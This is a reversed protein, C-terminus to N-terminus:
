NSAKVTMMVTATGEAVFYSDKDFARKITGSGEITSSTKGSHRAGVLEDATKLVLGAVACYVNVGGCLSLVGSGATALPHLEGPAPPLPNKELKYEKGYQMVFMAFMDGYLAQELAENIKKSDEANLGVPRQTINCVLGMDNEYTSKTEDWSSTQSGSISWRKSYGANRWYDSMQSVKLTCTGSLPEAKAYYKYKLAVAHTLVNGSPSEFTTEIVNAQATGKLGAYYFTRSTTRPAGCYAGQTVVAQVTGAGGFNAADDGYIISLPTGSETSLGAPKGVPEGLLTRTDAPLFLTDLRYNLAGSTDQDTAGAGQATRGIVGRSVGTNLMVDFIPLRSVSMPIGRNALAARVTDVEDGQINYAATAVGIARRDLKSLVLESRTFSDTALSQLTTYGSQVSEQLKSLWALQADYPAWAGFATAYAGRATANEKSLRSRELAALKADDLYASKLKDIAADREAGTLTSPLSIVALNFDSKATSIDADLKSIQSEIAEKNTKATVFATYEKKHDQIYNKTNLKAELIKEILAANRAYVGFSSDFYPSYAPEEDIVKRTEEPTRPVRYTGERMNNLIACSLTGDTFSFTGEMKKNAAPGVYLTNEHHDLLLTAGGTDSPSFRWRTLEDGRKPDPLALALQPALQSALLVPVVFLSVRQKLM